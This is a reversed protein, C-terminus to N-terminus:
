KFKNNKTTKEEDRLIWFNNKTEKFAEHTKLSYSDSCIRKTLLSWLMTVPRITAYKIDSKFIKWLTKFEARFITM